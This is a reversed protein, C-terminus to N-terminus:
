AHFQFKNFIGGIEMSILTTIWWDNQTIQQDPFSLSGESM